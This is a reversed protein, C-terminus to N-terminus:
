LEPTVQISHINKDVWDNWAGEGLDLLNILADITLNDLKYKQTKPDYNDGGIGNIFAEADVRAVYKNGADDVISIDAVRLVQGDDLTM